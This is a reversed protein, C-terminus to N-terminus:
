CYPYAAAPNRPPVNWFAKQLSSVRNDWYVGGITQALSKYSYPAIMVFPDGYSANEYVCWYDGTRNYVASTKDNMIGGVTDSRSLDKAGYQFYAWHGTGSSNEFICFRNDPCDSLAANATGPAVAVTMTSAAVAALIAGTLKSRLKV